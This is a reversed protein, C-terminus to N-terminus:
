RFDKRGHILIQAVTVTQFELAVVANRYAISIIGGCAYLTPLAFLSTGLMEGDNLIQLVDTCFQVVQKWISLCLMNM